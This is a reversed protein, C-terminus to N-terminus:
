SLPMRRRLDAFFSTLEEASKVNGKSCSGTSCGGTSCSSCGSGTGCDPKGCTMKEPDPPDPTHKDRSLDLLRVSLDFRDSLSALVASADCVDYPLAHLVAGTRDLNVEVDIFAIPLGAAEAGELITRGFAENQEAAALDALTALRVIESSRAASNMGASTVKSALVTGLELGRETRVVLRDGRTTAFGCAAEALFGLRGYQVLVM